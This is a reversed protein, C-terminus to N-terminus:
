PKLPIKLEGAKGRVEKVAEAYDDIDPNRLQWEMCVKLAEGTWIGPKLGGLEKCLQKGDIIGKITHADMLQMSELHDIFAQWESFLPELDAHM